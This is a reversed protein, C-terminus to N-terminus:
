VGSAGAGGFWRNGSNFLLSAFGENEKTLVEDTVMNSGASGLSRKPCELANGRGEWPRNCLLSAFCENEKTLVEDSAM